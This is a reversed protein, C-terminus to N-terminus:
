RNQYVYYRLGNRSSSFIGELIHAFVLTWPPPPHSPIQHPTIAVPLTDRRIILLCCLFFVLVVTVRYPYGDGSLSHFAFFTFEYLLSRCYETTILTACMLRASFMKIYVHYIGTYYVLTHSSPTPHFFHVRKSLTLPPYSTSCYLPSKFANQVM